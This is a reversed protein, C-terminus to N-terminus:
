KKKNMRKENLNKDKVWIISGKTLNLAIPYNKIAANAISSQKSLLNLSRKSFFKNEHERVQM